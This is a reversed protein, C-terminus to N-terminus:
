FEGTCLLLVNPPTSEQTLSVICVLTVYTISEQIMILSMIYFLLKILHSSNQTLIMIYFLMVNPRTSKQTQSMIYFLM